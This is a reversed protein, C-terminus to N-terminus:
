QEKGGVEEFIQDPDKAVKFYLVKKHRAKARDIVEKMSPTIGYDTLVWVEQCKGSIILKDKVRTRFSLGERGENYVTAPIRDNHWAFAAFHNITFSIDMEVGGDFVWAEDMDNDLKPDPACIYILKRFEDM